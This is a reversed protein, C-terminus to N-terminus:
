ADGHSCFVQLHMEDIAPLRKHRIPLDSPVEHWVRQVGVTWTGMGSKGWAKVGTDASTAAQRASALKSPLRRQSQHAAGQCAPM